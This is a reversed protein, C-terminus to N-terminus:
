ATSGVVSTWPGALTQYQEPTILDRTLEALGAGRAAGLAAGWAAGWAAGHAADWAARLAADWAADRAADRAAGHAADGAADGAAGWAAGRAAGLRQAEDYTLTRARDIVAVVREGNPGLAEWGPLERVVKFAGCGFKYGDLPTVPGRPEVEFLRCPWAGGILTEAKVTSAHLVGDSCVGRSLDPAPLRTIRGPRWVTWVDYFSTGDLRTAKYAVTIGGSM